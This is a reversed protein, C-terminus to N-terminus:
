NKQAKGLVRNVERQWAERAAPDDPDFRLDIHIGAFEHTLVKPSSLNHVVVQLINPMNWAVRPRMDAHGGTEVGLVDGIMTPDRMSVLQVGAIIDTGGWDVECTAEDIVAAWAGDPSVAREIVAHECTDGGKTGSEIWLTAVILFGGALAVAIIAQKRKQCLMYEIITRIPSNM